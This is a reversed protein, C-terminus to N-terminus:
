VRGQSTGIAIYHEYETVVDGRLSMPLWLIKVGNRVIWGDKDIINQNKQHCFESFNTIEEGSQVNWL